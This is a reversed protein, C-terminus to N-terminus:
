GQGYERGRDELTQVREARIREEFRRVFLRFAEPDSKAAYEGSRAQYLFKERRLMEEALDFNRWHDRFRFLKEVAVLITVVLSLLTPLFKPYQVDLNANILVPVLASAVISVTGLVLYGARYLRSLRAYVNIKPDVRQQMYEDATIDPFLAPAGAPTVAESSVAM